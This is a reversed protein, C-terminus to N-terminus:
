VTAKSKKKKDLEVDVDEFLEDKFEHGEEDQIDGSNINKREIHHREIGLLKAKLSIFKKIL